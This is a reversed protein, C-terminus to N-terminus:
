AYCVRWADEQTHFIIVSLSFLFILVACYVTFFDANETLLRTFVAKSQLLFINAFTLESFPMLIDVIFKWSSLILVDEEVEM